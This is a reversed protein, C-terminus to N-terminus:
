VRSGKVWSCFSVVELEPDGGNWESDGASGCGDHHAKEAEKNESKVNTHVAYRGHQQLGWYMCAAVSESDVVDCQKREKM